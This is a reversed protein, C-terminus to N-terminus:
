FRDIADSQGAGLYVKFRDQRLEDLVDNAGRTNLM